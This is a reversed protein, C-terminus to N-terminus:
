RSASQQPPPAINAEDAPGTKVVPKTWRVTGKLNDSGTGARSLTITYSQREKPAIRPLRWVAVEAKAQEDRRVGQYGNGTTKVV